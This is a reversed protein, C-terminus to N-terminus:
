GGCLKHLIRVMVVQFHTDHPHMRGQVSNLVKYSSTRSVASWLSRTAIIHTHTVANRHTNNVDRDSQVGPCATHEIPQSRSPATNPGLIRSNKAAGSVTFIKLEKREDPGDDIYPPTSAPSPVRASRPVFGMTFSSPCVCVCVVRAPQILLAGQGTGILSQDVLGLQGRQDAETPWGPVAQRPRHKWAPRGTSQTGHAADGSTSTESRQQRTNHRSSGRDAQGARQVTWERRPVGGDSAHGFCEPLAWRHHCGTPPPGTERRTGGNPRHRLKPPDLSLCGQPRYPTSWCMLESRDGHQRHPGAQATRGGRYRPRCVERHYRVSV